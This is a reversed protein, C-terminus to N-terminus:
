AKPKEAVPTSNAMQNAFHIAATLNTQLNNKQAVHFAQMGVGLLSCITVSLGQVFPPLTFGPHILAIAAGAASILSTIHPAFTKNM